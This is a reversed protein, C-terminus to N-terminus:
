WPDMYMTVWWDILPKAKSAVRSMFSICRAANRLLFSIGIRIRTGIRNIASNSPFTSNHTHKQWIQLCPCSMDNPSCKGLISMCRTPLMQTTHTRTYKYNAFARVPSSAHRHLLSIRVRSPYNAHMLCAVLKCIRRVHLWSAGGAAVALSPYAKYFSHHFKFRIFIAWRCYCSPLDLAACCSAPRCSLTIGDAQAGTRGRTAM